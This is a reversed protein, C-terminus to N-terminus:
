NQWFQSHHWKTGKLNSSRFISLVNYKFFLFKLSFFFFCDPVSIKLYRYISNVTLKGTNDTYNGVGLVWDFIYKVTSSEAEPLYIM